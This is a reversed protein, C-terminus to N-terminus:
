FLLCQIACVTIYEPKIPYCPVYHIMLMKNLLMISHIINFHENEKPQNCTDQLHRKQM